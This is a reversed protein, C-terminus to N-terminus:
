VKGYVRHSFAICVYPIWNVGGGRGRGFIILYIGAEISVRRGFKEEM